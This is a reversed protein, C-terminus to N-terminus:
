TKIYLSRPFEVISQQTLALSNDTPLMFSTTTDYSYTNNAYLINNQTLTASGAGAVFKTGYTIPGVSQVSAAFPTVINSWSVGNTSSASIGLSGGVMFKSNGFSSGLLGTTTFTNRGVWTIADTSTSVYHSPDSGGGGRSTYLYLGSGYSISTMSNSGVTGSNNNKSWNVCDTSTFIQSLTDSLYFTSGIVAIGAINAITSINRTSWTTADTSSALYGASGGALYLSGNYAM